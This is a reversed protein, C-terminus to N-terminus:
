QLIGMDRGHQVLLNTNADLDSQDFRIIYTHSKPFPPGRRYDGAVFFVHLYIREAQMADAYFLSQWLYSQLKDSYDVLKGGKGIEVFGRESVWCSKIEHVARKSVEWGDPSGIIGRHEVPEPKLWGRRKVLYDALLDEFANGFEFLALLEQEPLGKGYKSPWMTELIDRIITSVHVGTRPAEARRAAVLAKMVLGGGAPDLEHIRLSM